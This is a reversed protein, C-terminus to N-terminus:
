SRVVRQEEGETLEDFGEDLHPREEDQLTLLWSKGICSRRPFQLCTRERRLYYLQM